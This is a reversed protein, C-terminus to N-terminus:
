LKDCVFIKPSKKRRERRRVIRGLYNEFSPQLKAERKVLNLLKSKHLYLKIKGTNNKKWNIHNRFYCVKRALYSKKEQKM